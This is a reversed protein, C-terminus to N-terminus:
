DATLQIEKLRSNGTKPNGTPEKWEQKGFWWKEINQVYMTTKLDIDWLEM